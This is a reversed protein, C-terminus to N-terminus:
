WKFMPLPRLPTKLFQQWTQHLLFRHFGLRPYAKLIRGAERRKIGAPYLGFFVDYWDAKRFVEALLGFEAPCPTIKHHNLIIQRIEEYWGPQGTKELYDRM